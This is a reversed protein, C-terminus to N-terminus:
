ERYFVIRGQLDDPLLPREEIQDVAVVNFDFTITPFEHMLQLEQRYVERRIAKNRQAIFTWVLCIERDTSYTVARVEAIGGVRKAFLYAAAEIGRVESVAPETVNWHREGMTWPYPKSEPFAYSPLLVGELALAVANYRGESVTCTTGWTHLIAIKDIRKDLALVDTRM